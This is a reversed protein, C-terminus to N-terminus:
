DVRGLGDELLDLDLRLVGAVDGALDLRDGPQAPELPHRNGLVEVILAHGPQPGLRALLQRPKARRGDGLRAPDGADGRGVDGEKDDPEPAVLAPARAGHRVVWWEAYLM